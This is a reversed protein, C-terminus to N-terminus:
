MTAPGATTPRPSRVAWWYTTAAAVSAPPSASGRGLRDGEGPEGDDNGTTLTNTVNYLTMTVAGTRASYDYTYAHLDDAGDPVAEAYAVDM